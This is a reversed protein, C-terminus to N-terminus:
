QGRDDWPNSAEQDTLLEFAEDLAHIDWITRAGIRIAAPMKKTQVMKDFMTTSVGVYGAAELRTLGRRPAATKQGREKVAGLRELAEAAATLSTAAHTLVTEATPSAIQDVM